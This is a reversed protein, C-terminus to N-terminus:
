PDSGRGWPSTGTAVQRTRLIGWSAMARLVEYRCLLRQRPSLPADAIYRMYLAIRQPYGRLMRWWGRVGTGPDERDVLTARDRLTKQQWSTKNPHVRTFFREDPIEYFRGKLSLETLLIQDCSMHRHYVAAKTQSLATARIVGYLPGDVWWINRLLRRFRVTPDPSFVSEASNLDSIEHVPVATGHEDIGLTRAWVLVVSPDRDLVEVAKRLYDHECVDDSSAFKFYEGASLRFVSNFNDIVGYNERMRFYRIREDKHAYARCIEETGDTSANDSIVLEFDDFSQALISDVAAELYREGNYVPMGVSVKPRGGVSPMERSVGMGNSIISRM